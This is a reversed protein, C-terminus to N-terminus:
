KSYSYIHPTYYSKRTYRRIQYSIHAWWMVIIQFDVLKWWTCRIIKSFLKNWNSDLKGSRFGFESITDHLKILIEGIRKLFHRWDEEAIGSFDLYSPPFSLPSPSPSELYHYSTPPIPFKAPSSKKVLCHSGSSSYNQGIPGKEISFIVRQSYQVDILVLILIVQTDLSYSM